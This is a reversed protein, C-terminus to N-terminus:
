SDQTLTIEGLGPVAEYQVFGDKVEYVDAYGAQTVTCSTWYPPVETILTLPEDFLEPPVDTNLDIRILQNSAEMVSVLATDREQIYKYVSGYTGIWLDERVSVLYDLLQLFDQPEVLLWEGGMGHFHVRVWTGQELAEQAHRIMETANADTMSRSDTRHVLHYKQDLFNWEEETLNWDTAGGRQFSLLQSAGDPRLSWIIRATEGIEFEAEDLNKAGEHHMTHNALEHGAAPLIQEWVQQRQQYHEKGPNIFWTGVLGREVMAPVAVDAQSVMSDDFSLTYAGKKDGKWEAIRTVVHISVANQVETSDTKGDHTLIAFLVLGLGGAVLVLAPLVKRWRTLRTEVSPVNEEM